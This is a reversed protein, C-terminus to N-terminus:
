MYKAEEKGDNSRGNGILEEEMIDETTSSIFSIPFSRIKLKRM